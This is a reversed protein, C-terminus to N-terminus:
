QQINLKLNKIKKVLFQTTKIMMRMRMIMMTKMMRM